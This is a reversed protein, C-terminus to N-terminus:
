GDTSVDMAEQLEAHECAETSRLLTTVCVTIPPPVPTPPLDPRLRPPQCARGPGHLVRRKQHPWAPPDLFPISSFAAVVNTSIPIADLSSEPDNLLGVMAALQDLLVAETTRTVYWLDIVSAISM